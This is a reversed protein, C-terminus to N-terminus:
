AGTSGFGSKDRITRGLAEPVHVRQAASCYPVVILQAIKNGAQFFAGTRSHNRIMVILEGRYTSDIVGGHTYIQRRAISSRDRILGVYGNPIAVTIGTVVEAQEDPALAFDSYCTIDFGADGIEPTILKAKNRLHYILM